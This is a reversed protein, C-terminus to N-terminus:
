NKQRQLISFLFNNILLDRKPSQQQAYYEIKGIDSWDAILFFGGQPKVVRMGVEGLTRILFDKKEKLLLPM